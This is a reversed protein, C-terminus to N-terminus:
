EPFAMSISYYGIPSSTNAFNVSIIQIQLLSHINFLSCPIIFTSTTSCRVEVNMMGQEANMM